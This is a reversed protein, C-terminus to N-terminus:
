EENEAPAPAEAKTTKKSRPRTPAPEPVPELVELTGLAIATSTHADLAHVERTKGPALMHGATDCVVPYARRNIVTIKESM